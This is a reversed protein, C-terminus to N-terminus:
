IYPNIHREPFIFGFKKMKTKLDQDLKNKFIVVSCTNFIGEQDMSKIQNKIQQFLDSEPHAKEFEIGSKYYDNLRFFAIGGLDLAHVIKNLEILSISYVYNGSEEFYDHINYYYEDKPIYPSIKKNILKSVILKLACLIYKKKNLPPKRPEELPEILVVAEKAVRLMEYLGIIPRPLHHFSENCFVVDFSEDNFSLDEINQISYDLIRGDEKSKELMSSSLDSPLANINFKNKLKISDLGYRGDGVTLWKKDKFFEAIPTISTYFRDHRWFDVTTEDFWSEHIHKRNVNYIDNYMHDFQLDTFKKISNNM